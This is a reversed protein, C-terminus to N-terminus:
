NFEHGCEPCTHMMVTKGKERPKKPKDDTPKLNLKIEADGINPLATFELDFGVGDGLFLGLSADTAFGFQSSAELVGQMADKKNAADIVVYPIAPIEYGEYELMSLAAIRGAGDVVFKEWIFIPFRFGSRKISGKLKGLERTKADKLANSEYATKLEAFAITPLKSPNKVIIKKSM